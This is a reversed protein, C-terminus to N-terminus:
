IVSSSSIFESVTKAALKLCMIDDSLPHSDATEYLTEFSADASISEANHLNVGKKRTGNYFPANSASVSNLSPNSNNNNVEAPLIQTNMM